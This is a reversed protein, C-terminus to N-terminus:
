RVDATASRRDFGATASRGSPLRWCATTGRWVREAGALRFYSSEFLKYPPGTQRRPRDARFGRKEGLDMCRNSKRLRRQEDAGVATM